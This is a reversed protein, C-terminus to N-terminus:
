PLNPEELWHKNEDSIGAATNSADEMSPMGLLLQKRGSTVLGCNHNSNIYITRKEHVKEITDLLIVTLM